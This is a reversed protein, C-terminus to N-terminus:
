FHTQVGIRAVFQSPGSSTGNPDLVGSILAQAGENARQYVAEAYVSTRKSLSHDLVATIQHAHSDNLYANGKMYMYDAGLQWDPRFRWSLGTEGEAIASGNLTNRVTTVLATAIVNGFAYHAGIGWNRIGVQPSGAGPYKVETYAAGAGFPGRDYNLGFSVSNGSGLSGPVGGFGYLAGFKFGDISPSAYKIASAVTAGAMRDWDFQPAFPPNSPIGIKAFPGARFNYLGGVLLAADDRDGFLSDTMFDYQNGLTVSGYRDSVLGVYANRGFLGQGAIISGTGLAFQDVLDFVAHLGGGLDESGKFGLLNPTYIGDDFKLNAHGGENSVYSVGADILGYLTVGDSAPGGEAHASAAWLAVLAAGYMVRYRM